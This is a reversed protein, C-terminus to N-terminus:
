NQEGHQENWRNVFDAGKPTLRYNGGGLMTIYGRQGLKTMIPSLGNPNINHAEFMARIGARSGGHSLATLVIVVGNPKGSAFARQGLEHKREARKPKTLAVKVAHVAKLGVDIAKAREIRIDGLGLENRSYAKALLAILEGGHEPDVILTVKLTM